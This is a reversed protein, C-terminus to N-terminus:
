AKPNEDKDNQLEETKACIRLHDQLCNAKLIYRIERIRLHWHSCGADCIEYTASFSFLLEMKTKGNKLKFECELTQM